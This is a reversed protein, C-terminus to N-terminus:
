SVNLAACVGTLPGCPSGSSQFPTKSGICPLAPFIFSYLPINKCPRELDVTVSREGTFFRFGHIAGVTTIRPNKTLDKGLPQPLIRSLGCLTTHSPSVPCLWPSWIATIKEPVWTRNEKGCSIIIAGEFNYWLSPCHVFFAPVTAPVQMALRWCVKTSSVRFHKWIWILLYKEATNELEWHIMQSSPAKRTRERWKERGWRWGPRPQTLKSRRPAEAADSADTAGAPARATPGSAIRACRARARILADSWQNPWM